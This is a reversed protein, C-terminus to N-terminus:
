IAYKEAAIKFFIRRLEELQVIDPDYMYAFDDSMIHKTFFYDQEDEFIPIKDARLQSKKLVNEIDEFITNM